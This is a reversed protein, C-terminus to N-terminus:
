HSTLDHGGGSVISAGGGIREHIHTEVSSGDPHMEIQRDFYGDGDDDIKELDPQGDGNRDLDMVDLRGDHNQDVWSEDARGDHDTDLLLGRFEGNPGYEVWTDVKGDGDTDRQVENIHGDGNYDYSWTDPRGDHNLDQSDVPVEYSLIPEDSGYHDDSGEDRVEGENFGTPHVIHDFHDTM